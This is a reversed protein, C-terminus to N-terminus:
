SCQAILTPREYLSDLIEFVDDKTLGSSTAETVISRLSKLVVDKPTSTTDTSFASLTDVCTAATATTCSSVTTSSSTSQSQSRSRSESGGSISWTLSSSTDSTSLSSIVSSPMADEMSPDHRPEFYVDSDIKGPEQDATQEEACEPYHNTDRGALPNVIGDEDAEHAILRELLASLTTPDVQGLAPGVSAIAPIGQSAITDTLCALVRRTEEAQTSSDRDCLEIAEPDHHEAETRSKQRNIDSREEQHETYKCWYQDDEEDEEEATDCYASLNERVFATGHSSAPEGTASPSPSEDADGYQGWYDDDSDDDEEKNDQGVVNLVRSASVGNTASSLLPSFNKGSGNMLKWAGHAVLDSEQIIAMNHYKWSSDEEVLLVGLIHLSDLAGLPVFAQVSESVLARRFVRATEWSSCGWLLPPTPPSQDPSWLERIYKEVAALGHSPPPTSSSSLPSSLLNTDWLLLLDKLNSGDPLALFHLRQKLPESAISALDHYRHCLHATLVAQARM